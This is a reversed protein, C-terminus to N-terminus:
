ANNDTCIKARTSSLVPPFYWLSVIISFTLSRLMAVINLPATRNPCAKCSVSCFNVQVKKKVNREMERSCIEFYVITTDLTSITNAIAKCNDM